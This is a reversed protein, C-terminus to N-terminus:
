RSTSHVCHSAVHRAGHRTIRREFHRRSHYGLSLLEAVDDSPSIARRAFTLRYLARDYANRRSLSLSFELLSQERGNKNEFFNEFERLIRALNRFQILFSLFSFFFARLFTLRLSLLAYDKFNSKFFSGLSNKYRSTRRIHHFYTRADVCHRKRKNDAITIISM